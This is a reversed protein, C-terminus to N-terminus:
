FEVAGMSLKPFEDAAGADDWSIVCLVFVVEARSPEWDEESDLVVVAFLVSNESSKLADDVSDLPVSRPAPPVDAFSGGIDDPMLTGNALEVSGGVLAVPGISVCLDDCNKPVELM